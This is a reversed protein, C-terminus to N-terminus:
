EEWLNHSQNLDINDDSDFTDQNAMARKGNMIGSNEPLGDMTEYKTELDYIEAQPKIYIKTM